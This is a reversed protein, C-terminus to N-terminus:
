AKALSVKWDRGTGIGYKDMLSDQNCDLSLYLSSGCYLVPDGKPVFGFSKAFPVIGDFVATGEHTIRISM